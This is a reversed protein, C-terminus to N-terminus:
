RESRARRRGAAALAALGVGLLALTGPEPVFELTLIGVAPLAAVTSLDTYIAIPTVLSVVGGAAAATSSSGSAPGHVFGMASLVRPYSHSTLSVVTTGTTWPGGQATVNIATGMLTQTGGVGVVSLPVSINYIAGSSCPGFVCLRGVGSLPLTGTGGVFSGAGNAVIEQLGVVPFAAPDTLVVEGTVAFASPPLAVSSLHNGSGTVTAVGSGTVSVLGFSGFQLSLSGQFPLVDAAAPGAGAGLLCVLGIVLRRM